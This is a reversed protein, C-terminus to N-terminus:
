NQSLPPTMIKGNYSRQTTCSVHTDREVENISLDYRAPDALRVKTGAKVWPVEQLFVIDYGKINPVVVQQRIATMGEKTSGNM